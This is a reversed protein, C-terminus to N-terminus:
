LCLLAVLRTTAVQGIGIPGFQPRQAVLHLAAEHLQVLREAHQEVIPAVPEVPSSEVLEAVLLSDLGSAGQACTDAHVVAVNPIGVDNDLDDFGIIIGVGIVIAVSSSSPGGPRRLAAETAPCRARSDAGKPTSRRLARGRV